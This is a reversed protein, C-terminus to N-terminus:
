LLFRTLTTHSLLFLGLVRDGGTDRRKLSAGRNNSWRIGAECALDKKGERGKGESRKAESRKEETHLM